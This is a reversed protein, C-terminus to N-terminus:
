VTRKVGEERVACGSRMLTQQAMVRGPPHPPPADDSGSRDCGCLSLGFLLAALLALLKRMSGGRFLGKQAEITRQRISRLAATLGAM